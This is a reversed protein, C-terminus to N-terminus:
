VILEFEQMQLEGTGEFTFYLPYVGPEVTAEASVDQWQESEIDSISLPLEAIVPNGRDTTVKVVGRATGRARIRIARISQIDFYKFGLVSGDQIQTVYTGAHVQTNTDSDEKSVEMSDEMSDEMPQEPAPEVDEGEQTLYPMRREREGSERMDELNVGKSDKSFLNCVIGAPYVGEGRLPGGNLGCSTMEVQRISGDPAITIPEASGQRSFMTQNTPRHYFIYWQDGIQVMGGHNNGGHNRPETNGDVGVDINSVITGRFTFDRDPYRSTAYCLEVCQQSSYVFYYTDGIKRISSAEFFNHTGLSEDQRPMIIKPEGVMTVMDSKLEMVYAGVFTRQPKFPFFPNFGSYLYVKGDDDVLVGPDFQIWDGESSGPEYGEEDHVHGLFEYSGAPTDCVAVSIVETNEMSYYLYYRGDKGQVVDPAYLNCIDKGNYLPEQTKRFIVGEYRWNGLEEVPASWCVYDNQCYDTGHARDHSGYVYLREGFVRPEGDPVYEYTPLYPNFAQRKM